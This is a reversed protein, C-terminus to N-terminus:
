VGLKWDILMRLMEKITAHETHAGKKEMTVRTVAIHKQRETLFKVKEPVLCTLMRNMANVSICRCEVLFFPAIFGAVITVIGEVIFIWRGFILVIFDSESHRV